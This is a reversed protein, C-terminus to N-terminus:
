TRRTAPTATTSSSARGSSASCTATPSRWCPASPPAAPSRPSSATAAAGSREWLLLLLFPAAALVANPKTAVALALVAGAAGALGSSRREHAEWALWCALLALGLPPLDALVRHAFLPFPPAVTLLAAATLGALPGAIARGLLYAALCTAIAVVVMGIHFGRVSDAGATSILRLLLYFVPPQPAFVDEGLRQGHELADVSTLYVGEDYDTDSGVLRGFLLAQAAVLM